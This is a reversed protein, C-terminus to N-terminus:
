GEWAGRLSYRIRMTRLLTSILFLSTITPHSSLSLNLIHVLIDHTGSISMHITTDYNLFTVV